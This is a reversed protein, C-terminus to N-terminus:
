MGDDTVGPEIVFAQSGKLSAVKEKVDWDRIIVLMGPILIEYDIVTDEKEEDGRAPGKEAEESVVKNTDKQGEDRQVELTKHEVRDTDEEEKGEEKGKKQEGELGQEEDDSFLSHDGFLSSSNYDKKWPEEEQEEDEQTDYQADFCEDDGQVFYTKPKHRSM